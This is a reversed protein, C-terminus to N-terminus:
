EKETQMGMDEPKIVEAGDPVQFEFIKDDLKENTKVNEFRLKNRNGLADTTETEAVLFSETDVAVTITGLMRRISEDKPVLDLSYRGGADKIRGSHFSVEFEEKMSKAAGGRWDTSKGFRLIWVNFIGLAIIVQIIIRVTDM